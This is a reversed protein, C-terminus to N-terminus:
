RYRRPVFAEPLGQFRVNNAVGLLFRNTDTLEGKERQMAVEFCIDQLTPIPRDLRFPMGVSEVVRHFYATSRGGTCWCYGEIKRLMELRFSGGMLRDDGLLAPVTGTLDLQYDTTIVLTGPRCQLGIACSLETLLEKNLASSFMFILDADGFYTYPDSFSGCNLEVSAMPLSHEDDVPLQFSIQSDRSEDAQLKTEVEEVDDKAIEDVMNDSIESPVSDLAEKVEEQKAEESAEDAILNMDQKDVVGTNECRCNQGIINEASEHMSPLLEIGRCVKWTPHLAAAAVVLRGAGSGIDCFVKDTWGQSTDDRNQEKWIDYAEDLLEAFFFIDFEGYTFCEPPDKGENIFPWYGDKRSQANRADLETPPYLRDLGKLISAYSVGSLTSKTTNDAMPNEEPIQQVREKVRQAINGPDTAFADIQPITTTCAFVVLSAFLAAMSGYSITSLEM